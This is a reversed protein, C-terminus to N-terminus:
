GLYLIVVLRPGSEGVTHTLMFGHTLEEGKACEFCCRFTCDSTSLNKRRVNAEVVAKFTKILLLVSPDTLFVISNVM